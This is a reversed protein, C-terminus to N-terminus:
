VIERREPSRGQPSRGRNSRSRSRSTGNARDHDRRSRSRSASRHSRQSGDLNNNSSSSPLIAPHHHHRRSSNTAKHNAGQQQELDYQAAAAFAAEAVRSTRTSAHNASPANRASRVIKHSPDDTMEEYLSQEDEDAVEERQSRGSPTRHLHRDRQDSRSSKRRKKKKKKKNRGFLAAWLGRDKKSRRSRSESSSQHRSMHRERAQQIKSQVMVHAAFLDRQVTAWLGRAGGGHNEIYSKNRLLYSFGCLYIGGLFFLVTLIKVPLRLKANMVAISVPQGNAAAKM